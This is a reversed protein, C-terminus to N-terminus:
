RKLIPAAPKNREEELAQVRTPREMAKATLGDRRLIPKEKTALTEDAEHTVRVPKLLQRRVSEISSEDIAPAVGERTKAALIKADYEERLAEPLQDVAIKSPSLFEAAEKVKEDTNLLASTRLAANKENLAEELKASTDISKQWEQVKQGKPSDLFAQVKKDHAARTSRDIEGKIVRGDEDITQALDSLDHSLFAAPITLEIDRRGEAASKHTKYSVKVEVLDKEPNAEGLETSKPNEDYVYRVTTQLDIGNEAAKQQLDQLNHVFAGVAVNALGHHQLSHAQKEQILHDIKDGV